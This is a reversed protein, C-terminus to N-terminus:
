TFGGNSRLLCRCILLQLHIRQMVHILLLLQGVPLVYNLLFGLVDLSVRRLFNGHRLHLLLLLLHLVHRVKGLVSVVLLKVIVALHLRCENLAAQSRNPLLLQLVLLLRILCRHHMLRYLFLLELDLLHSGLVLTLQIAGCTRGVLGDSVGALRLLCCFLLFAGALGGEHVVQLAEDLLLFYHIVVSYLILLGLGM